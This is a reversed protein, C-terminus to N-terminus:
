SLTGMSLWQNNGLYMVQAVGNSPLSTGAPTLSVGSAMALSLTGTSIRALTVVTGEDVAPDKILTVTYNNATDNILADGSSVSSLLYNARLRKVTVRRLLTLLAQLEQQQFQFGADILDPVQSAPVKVMGQYATYTRGNVRVIDGDAYDSPVLLPVTM